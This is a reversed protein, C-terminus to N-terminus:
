DGFRPFPQHPGPITKSQQVPLSKELAATGLTQGAPAATIQQRSPDTSPPRKGAGGGPEPMPLPGRRKSNDLEMKIGSFKEENYKRWGPGLVGNESGSWDPTKTDGFVSALLAEMQSREDVNRQRVMEELTGPAPPGKALHEMTEKMLSSGPEGPPAGGLKGVLEETKQKNTATAKKLEENAGKRGATNISRTLDQYLQDPRLMGVTTIGMYSDAYTGFTEAFTATPTGDAALSRFDGTEPDRISALLTPGDIEGSQFRDNLVRLGEMHIGMDKVQQAARQKEHTAPNPNNETHHTLLRNITERVRKMNEGYFAAQEKSMDMGLLELEPHSPEELFEEMGEGTKYAQTAARVYRQTGYRAAQTMGRAIETSLGAAFLGVGDGETSKWFDESLGLVDAGGLVMKGVAEGFTQAAAESQVYSLSLDSKFKGHVNQVTRFLDSMAEEVDVDTTVMFHNTQRESIDALSGLMRKVHDPADKLLEMKQLMAEPNEIDMAEMTKRLSDVNFGPSGAAGRLLATTFQGILRRERIVEGPINSMLKQREEDSLSEGDASINWIAREANELEKPRGPGSGHMIHLLTNLASRKMTSTKEAAEWYETMSLNELDQLVPSKLYGTLPIPKTPDNPLPPVNEGTLSSIATQTRHLTKDGLSPANAVGQRYEKEAAAHGVLDKLMDYVSGMRHQAGATAMQARNFRQNRKENMKTTQALWRNEAAEAEDEMGKTMMRQQMAAQFALLQTDGDLLYALKLAADQPRKQDDLIKQRAHLVRIEMDTMTKLYAEQNLRTQEGQKSIQERLYAMEREHQEKARRDAGLDITVSSPM